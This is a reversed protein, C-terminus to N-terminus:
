RQDFERETTLPAQVAKGRGSPPAPTPRDCPCPVSGPGIPMAACTTSPPRADGAPRLPAHPVGGGRDRRDQPVRHRPHPRSGPRGGDAPARRRVATTEGGRTGRRDGPVAPMHRVTWRRAQVARAPDIGVCAGAFTLSGGRAPAPVFLNEAEAGEPRAFGVMRGGPRRGTRSSGHGGPGPRVASGIRATTGRTRVPSSVSIRTPSSALAGRRQSDAEFEAREIEVTRSFNPTTM